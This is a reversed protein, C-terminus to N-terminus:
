NQYSEYKERIEQIMGYVQMSSEVKIVDPYESYDMEWGQPNLRPYWNTFIALEFNNKDYELVSVRVNKNIEVMRQIPKTM